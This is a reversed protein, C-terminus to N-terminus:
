GEEGEDLEEPDVEYEREGDIPASGIARRLVRRIM